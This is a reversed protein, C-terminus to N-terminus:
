LDRVSKGFSIVAPSAGSNSILNDTPISNIVRMQRDKFNMDQSQGFMLGIRQAKNLYSQLDCLVASSLFRVTAADVWAQINVIDSSKMKVTNNIMYEVVTNMQCAVTAMDTDSTTDAQIPSLTNLIDQGKDEDMPTALSQNVLGIMKLAIDQSSVSSVSRRRRGVNMLSSVMRLFYAKLRFLGKM